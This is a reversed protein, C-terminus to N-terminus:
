TVGQEKRVDDLVTKAESFHANNLAGLSNEIIKIRSELSVCYIVFDRHTDFLNLEPPKSQSLPLSDNM